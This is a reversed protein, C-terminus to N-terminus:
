LRKEDKDMDHLYFTYGDPGGLNFKIEDSFIVKRWDNDNLQRQVDWAM